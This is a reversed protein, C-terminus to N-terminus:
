LVQETELSMELRKVRSHKRRIHARLKDQRNTSHACKGCDFFLAQPCHRSVVHRVLDWRQRGRYDNCYFCPWYCRSHNKRHSMMHAVFDDISNVQFDCYDCVFSLPSMHKVVHRRLLSKKRTRYECESCRLSGRWLTEHRVDLKIPTRNWKFDSRKRRVKALTVDFNDSKLYSECKINTRRRSDCTAAFRAINKRVRESRRYPDTSSYPEVKPDDAMDDCDSNSTIM